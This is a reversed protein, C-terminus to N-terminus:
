TIDHVCVFTYYKKTFAFIILTFKNKMKLALLGYGMQKGCAYKPTVDTNQGITIRNMDSGDGSGLRVYIGWFAGRIGKPRTVFQQFLAPFNWAPSCIWGRKNAV